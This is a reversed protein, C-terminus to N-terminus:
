EGKPTYALFWVCGAAYAAAIACVVAAEGRTSFDYGGLWCLLAVFAGAGMAASVRKAKRM